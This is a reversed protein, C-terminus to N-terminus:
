KDGSDNVNARRKAMAERSRTRAKTAACDSCYKQRNSKRQYVQGCQVCTPMDNYVAGRAQWYRMELAGDTPLVAREFYPCGLPKCDADTVYCTGNHGNYTACNREAFKKFVKTEEM